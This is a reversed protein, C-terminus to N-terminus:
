FRFLFYGVVVLRHEFHRKNELSSLSLYNIDALCTKLLFNFYHSQATSRTTLSIIVINLLYINFFCPTNTLGYALLQNILVVGRREIIHSLRNNESAQSQNSDDGNGHSQCPRSVHFVEETLIPHARKKEAASCVHDVHNLLSLGFNSILFACIHKGKRPNEM